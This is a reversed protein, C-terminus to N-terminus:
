LKARDLEDLSEAIFKAHLDPNEELQKIIGAKAKEVSAIVTQDKLLNSFKEEEITLSKQVNQEISQINKLTTEEIECKFINAKSVAEKELKDIEQPLKQMAKQSDAFIEESKEKEEDSKQIETEVNKVSNELSTKLNMKQAIYILIILMIIFNITNSQALYKLFSLIEQM